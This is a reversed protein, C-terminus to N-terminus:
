VKKLIKNISNSILEIKLGENYRLDKYAKTEPTASGM